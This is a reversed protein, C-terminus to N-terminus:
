SLVCGGAPAPNVAVVSSFANEEKPKKGKFKVGGPGEFDVDLGKCIAFAALGALIAIIAVILVATMPEVKSVADGISEANRNGNALQTAVVRTTADCTGFDVLCDEQAELSMKLEELTNVTRM